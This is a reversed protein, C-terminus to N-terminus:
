SGPEDPQFASTTSPGLLLPTSTIGAALDPAARARDGMRIATDLMIATAMSLISAALDKHNFVMGEVGCIAVPSAFTNGTPYSYKAKKLARDQNVIGLIGDSGNCLWGCNYQNSPAYSFYNETLPDGNFNTTVELGQLLHFNAQVFHFSGLLAALSIAGKM